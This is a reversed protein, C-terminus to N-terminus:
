KNALLRIKKSNTPEKAEMHLMERYSEKNELYGSPRQFPM